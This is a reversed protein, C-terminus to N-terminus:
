GIWCLVFLGAFAVSLEPLLGTVCVKLFLRGVVHEDPRSQELVPGGVLHGRRGDVAPALLPVELPLPKLPHLHVIPALILVLAPALALAPALVVM